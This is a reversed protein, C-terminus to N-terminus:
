FITKMKISLLIGIHQRKQASYGQALTQEFALIWGPKWILQTKGVSQQRTKAAFEASRRKRAGAQVDQLTSSDKEITTLIHEGSRDRKVGSM